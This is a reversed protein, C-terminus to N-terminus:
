PTSPRTARVWARFTRRAQKPGYTESNAVFETLHEAALFSFALSFSAPAYAQDALQWISFRSGDYRWIEPVSLAAYIEFKDSSDHTLDIEVVLDPPPDRSLDLQDREGIEGGHQIYFVTM